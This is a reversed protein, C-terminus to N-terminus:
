GSTQHACLDKPFKIDALTCKRHYKPCVDNVTYLVKRGKKTRSLLGVREMEKLHYSVTPQTLSVKEVVETVTASANPRSKLFQYIALRTSVGLTKFCQDSM